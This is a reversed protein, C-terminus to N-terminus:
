AAELLLDALYIEARSPGTTSHRVGTTGPLPPAHSRHRHGTPTTIEISHPGHRAPGPRARWGPAEKALNCYACRGGLNPEATPGGARVPITHDTHRIPADCWPTRCTGGDRAWAAPVPGHGDVRAPEPDGDLLSADTMTLQVAVPTADARTRGTLREVLTDAMVQGRSRPDGSAQATDAAKVLAAYAAVGQAVPLLASVWTMTDPAPRIGVRREAAAKRNRRVV